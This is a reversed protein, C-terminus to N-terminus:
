INNTDNEIIKVIENYKGNEFIERRLLENIMTSRPIKNAGKPTERKRIINIARNIDPDISITFIIKNM